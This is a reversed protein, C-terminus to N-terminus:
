SFSDRYGGSDEYTNQRLFLEFEVYLVGEWSFFRRCTNRSM